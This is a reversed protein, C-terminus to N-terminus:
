LRLRQHDDNWVCAASASFITVTAKTYMGMCWTTPEGPSLRRTLASLGEIRYITWIVWVPPPRMPLLIDCGGVMRVKRSLKRM